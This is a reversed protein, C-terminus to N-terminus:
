KKKDKKRPRKRARQKIQEAPPVPSGPAAGPRKGVKVPKGNNIDRQENVDATPPAGIQAIDLLSGGFMYAGMHQTKMWPCLWVKLGINRAFQCFMYDESLYRNTYNEHDEAVYLAELEVRTFTKKKSGELMKQLNRPIWSRKRDFWCDFFAMIDRSGDFHKTRVHDPTYMFDDKYAEQWTLLTEKKIMMFGTGSELVEFPRDLQIETTGQVPNFVYDGVFNDLKNPNEDAFGKDVAMKIKEWSITKKPYPACIIDYENDKTISLALLSLVDNPEFGVDADIFVLRDCPSRLFEDCVYNRARTILSENFLFHFDIQIGYMTCLKALEMCSKAFQGGAQGGYMPTGIMIRHKQLEGVPATIDM